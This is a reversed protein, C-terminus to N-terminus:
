TKDRYAALQKEGREALPGTGDKWRRHIWFWQDMRARVQAELRDNVEQTM